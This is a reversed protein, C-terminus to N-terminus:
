RGGQGRQYYDVFKRHKLAGFANALHAEGYPIIDVNGHDLQPKVLPGVLPGGGGTFIVADINDGSRLEQVWRERIERVLDGLADEVIDTVDQEPGGKHSYRRTQLLQEIDRTAMDSQRKYRQKIAANITSYVSFLGRDISDNYPGLELADFTMFDTTFGGIDIIVVSSEALQRNTFSRGSDSLCRDALSGFGEPVLDVMEAPITYTLYRGEYEIEWQRAVLDILRDGEGAKIRIVPASITLAVTGSRKPYLSALLAGFLADWEASGYRQYGTVEGGRGLLRREALDGVLWCEGGLKLQVSYTQPGGNASSENQSGFLTLSRLNDEGGNDRMAVNRIVTYHGDDRVAKGGWNGPDLSIQYLSTSNGSM